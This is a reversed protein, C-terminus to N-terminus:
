MISFFFTFYIFILIGIFKIKRKTKVLLFPSAKSVVKCEFSTSWIITYYQFCLIIIIILKKKALTQIVIKLGYYVCFGCIPDSNPHNEEKVLFNVDHSLKNLFIISQFNKLDWTYFFLMPCRTCTWIPKAKNM